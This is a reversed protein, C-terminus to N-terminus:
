TKLPFIIEIEGAVPEEKENNGGSLAVPFKTLITCRTGTRISNSLFCPSCIKREPM